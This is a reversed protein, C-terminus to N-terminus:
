FLGFLVDKYLNFLVVIIITAAIIIGYKAKPFAVGRMRYPTKNKENDNDIM